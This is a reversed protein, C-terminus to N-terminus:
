LDPFKSLRKRHLILVRATWKGPAYAREISSDSRPLILSSQMWITFKLTRERTAELRQVWI